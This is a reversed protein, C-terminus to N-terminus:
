FGSSTYIDQPNFATTTSTASTVKNGALGLDNYSLNGPSVATTFPGVFTLTLVSSGSGAVATAAVANVKFAAASTAGTTVPMNYTIQVHTADTTKASLIFPVGTAPTSAPTVTATAAGTLATATGGCAAATFSKATISDVETAALNTNGTYTVSAQGLGNATACAPGVTGVAGGTTSSSPAVFFGLFAGPFANGYQDKVTAIFIATNSGATGSLSASAPAWTVSTPTAAAQVTFGATAFAQNGSADTALTNDTYTGTTAPALTGSPSSYTGYGAANVDSGAVTLPTSSVTTGFSNIIRAVPSAIINAPDVTAGASVKASYTVSASANVPNPAITVASVAPPVTTAPTIGGSPGSESGFSNAATVFWTYSNGNAVTTDIFNYSAAGTATVTGVVSTTGFAAAAGNGRYVNYSTVSQATEASDSFNITATNSGASSAAASITPPTTPGAAVTFSVASSATGVFNCLVPYAKVTHAGAAGVSTTPTYTWTGNSAVTATGHPSTTNLTADASGTNSGSTPAVGADFVVDVTSGATGTGTVTPKSGTTAGNTPSTIVPSVPTASSYSFSVTTPASTTSSTTATATVTHNGTALATPQTFAWTGGGVTVVGTPTGTAATNDVYVNVTAGNTPYTGTYRPFAGGTNNTNLCDAATPWTIAPTAAKVTGSISSGAAITSTGDASSIGSSTAPVTVTFTNGPTLGVAPTLTVSNDATAYTAATPAVCAGGTPSAICYNAINTAGTGSSANNMPTTFVVKVSSQTATASLFAATGGTSGTGSYGFLDVVLDTSGSFNYFSVSGTSSLTAVTMNPITQGAVWNLDSAVPRTGGGPYVTLFSAATTNTVTVNFLAASAGSPIGAFGTVQYTSSGGAGLTGGQVRTDIVRTPNVPVFFVGTATADTYYGDVDIVLDTTGFKNYFNVKGGTGVPVTVRNPVTWGPVWNLNSVTPMTGGAPWATLFSSGTTNTVTANVVVGSVGTLPVGGAGTVQVSLTSGAALTSGSNPFGSGTRTDTIRAPAV